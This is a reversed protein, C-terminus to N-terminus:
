QVLIYQVEIQIASAWTKISEIFWDFLTNEKTHLYGHRFHMCATCILSHAFYVYRLGVENCYAKLDKKGKIKQNVIVDLLVICCNCDIM